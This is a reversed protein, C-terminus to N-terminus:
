DQTSISQAIKNIGLHEDSISVAAKNLCYKRFSMWVLEAEHKTWFNLGIQDSLKDTGYMSKVQSHFPSWSQLEVKKGKVDM